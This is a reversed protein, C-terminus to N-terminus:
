KEVPPFFLKYGVFLFIGLSVVLLAVMWEEM